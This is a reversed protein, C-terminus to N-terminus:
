QAGMPWGDGSVYSGTTSHGNRTEILSTFHGNQPDSLMVTTPVQTTTGQACNPVCSQIASAGQGVAQVPTWSTWSIGTVINGADASFALESPKVGSWNQTILIPLPGSTTSSSSTVTSLLVSATTTVAAAATAPVATTTASSTITVTAASSGCGAVILISLGLAVKRM